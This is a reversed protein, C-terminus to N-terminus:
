HEMTSLSAVYESVAKIEEDTLKGKYAPMGEGKGERTIKEVKAVDAWEKTNIAPGMTGQGTTGHCSACNKDYVDKGPGATVKTKPILGFASYPVFQIEHPMGESVLENTLKGTDADWIQIGM